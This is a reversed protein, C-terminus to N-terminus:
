KDWISQNSLNEEEGFGDQKSDSEEPTAGGSVPITFGDNQMIEGTNLCVKEANPKIYTQKM